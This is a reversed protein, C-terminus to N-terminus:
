LYCVTFFFLTNLINVKLLGTKAWGGDLIEVKRWDVCPVLVFESFFIVFIYIHHMGGGKEQDPVACSGEIRNKEFVWIMNRLISIPTRM